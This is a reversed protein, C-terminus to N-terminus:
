SLSVNNMSEMRSREFLWFLNSVAAAVAQWLITLFFLNRDWDHMETELADETLEVDVVHQFQDLFCWWRLLWWWHECQCAVFIYVKTWFCCDKAGFFFRLAFSIPVGVEAEILRKAGGTLFSWATLHGDVDSNDALVMSVSVSSLQAKVFILITATSIVLLM